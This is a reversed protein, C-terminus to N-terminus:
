PATASSGADPAFADSKLMLMGAPVSSFMRRTDDDTLHADGQSQNAGM